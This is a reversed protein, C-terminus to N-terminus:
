RHGPDVPEWVPKQQMAELRSQVTNEDTPWATLGDAQQAPAEALACIFPQSNLSGHCANLSNPDSLHEFVVAPLLKFPHRAVAGSESCAEIEAWGTQAPAKNCNSKYHFSSQNPQLFAYQSCLQDQSSTLDFPMHKPIFLDNAPAQQRVVSGQM